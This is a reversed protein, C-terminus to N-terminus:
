PTADCALNACARGGHSSARRRGGAAFPVIMTILKTPYQQASVTGSGLLTLATIMGMLKKRM